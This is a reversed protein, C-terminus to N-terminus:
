QGRYGSHFSYKRVDLHCFTNVSPLGKFILVYVFRNRHYFHTFLAVM